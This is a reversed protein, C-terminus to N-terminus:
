FGLAVQNEFLLQPFSFQASITVSIIAKSRSLVWEMESSPDVEDGLVAGMYGLM